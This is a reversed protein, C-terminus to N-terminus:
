TRHEGDTRKPLGGVLVLVVGTTIASDALNFAPWHWDGYYLDIFDIVLGTAVRDVLNGVAGGLILALGAASARYRSPLSLLWRVIVICVVVALLVFFWRQWGGADSLFSFAAGTNYMLTLNASPILELPRYPELHSDALYKTIQDLFVVAIALWFWRRNGTDAQPRDNNGREPM